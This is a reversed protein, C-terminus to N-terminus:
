SLLEMVESLVSSDFAECDRFVIICQQINNEKIWEHLLQLDYDLLKKASKKSPLLDVEDEDFRKQSTGSKIIAKLLTKLNSGDSSSVPIFISGAEDRSREELQQFILSHAAISPGALLFGAPLGDYHMDSRRDRVFTSIENLTAENAAKIVEDIRHRQSAWLDRYLQHRLPLSSALGDRGEVRRRKAPREHSFVYAKEHEM